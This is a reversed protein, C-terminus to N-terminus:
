MCTTPSSIARIFTARSDRPNWAVPTPDQGTM